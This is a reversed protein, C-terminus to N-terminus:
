GPKVEDSAASGRRALAKRRLAGRDTGAHSSREAAALDDSGASLTHLYGAFGVVTPYRFVDTLAIKFGTEQQLRRFVAVALLSHGGIDFFNDTRGIPRALLDTWVDAVLREFDDMPAASADAPLLSIAGRVRETPLAARDVKGNPTLPLSGMSVVADPVMVDPLAAAVHKRLLSEDIGADTAPVVFAVLRADAADGQAVVVSRDVSPHKDLQTEIEGLEIRHGRIKVQFDVRGAFAIVGDPHFRALDGTAYVRGMGPRDVFRQATLDDRGLYGRAVGEGGIHLEGLAGIPLPRGASDLIHVTTNGIARGIPIPKVPPLDIEHVLSWITTETPGYMNTFRGSVVERLEAGLREPLAEGGVLLHEITGLAVRDDPDAILMAALSPTCQVHTVSYKSILAALSEDSAVSPTSPAATSAITLRDSLEGLLGLSDLVDDTDIGFDILCALEDAGIESLSEAMQTAANVDGFLGSSDLYRAAALTLLEDMEVDSLSRFAEDASVGANAFTPFASAMNKLLGTASGLYRKLPQEAKRRAASRDNNLYTHLMVTIHGDGEHGATTWARRYVAINEALQEISQGLLHTLLNFGLEGAKAFTATTGASTLWVPLEPQVPRPLTRVSVIADDPGVMDVHEGRWLARVEDIRSPLDQRATRYGSPNLVFDNPQWGPAFSIGVRGNSLNDVVSWEEAVRASSHLPLVVSGARISISETSAAVAAALVSPNPYAGGFEHFHREPLWVAEFGYDDAFRVSERLLRYGDSAQADGAAFFFLSLRTARRSPQGPTSQQSWSGASAIGHKQIVVHFGRTVTWLLELVSIDFSLSTVALWTGPPDHDIVDDMAAFFNVVNRHELMVGKPRGTSGSTYIVYALDDATHAPEADPNTPGGLDGNPLIEDPTLVTVGPPAIRSAIDISAVLVTLGSDSVMYALRDEPYGPDLPVYASGVSLVALVGVLLEIDRDLAIGVLSGPRAGSARLQDAFRQVANDLQAYSLTRGSCSVAPDEPALRAREAFQRDVTAGRDFSLDTRNWESFLLQEEPGIVDLEHLPSTPAERLALLITSIQETSRLLASRDRLRARVVLSQAGGDIVAEVLPWEATGIPSPEGVTIRLGPDIRRRRLTPDRGILDALYPGRRALERLEEDVAATASVADSHRDVSFRGLPRMVLPDLNRFTQEVSADSYDFWAVASNTTRSWWTLVAAAIDEIQAGNPIAISHEIWPVTPDLELHSPLSKHFEALRHVWFSEHRALAEDHAALGNVVRPDPPHVVAPLHLELPNVDEGHLTTLERILLDGEATAIQVGRDSISVITGAPEGSAPAVETAAAVLAVDEVIWRVVGIRNRILPGLSLSRVARDIVSAPTTPDLLVVPRHYRGFWGIPGEAQPLFTSSPDSVAALVAPFTRMGEEYCRANLSFATEDPAVDFESSVVVSGADVDSTMTHWTVAHRHEGHFLAWTTVALGGYQPLPGDHFNIATGVSALVDDAIIHENAVSFLVGVHRSALFTALQSSEIARFGAHEAADRLDPRRSAIVTVEAGFTRATEACQLVLSEDGVFAVEPMPRLARDDSVFAGNASNTGRRRM